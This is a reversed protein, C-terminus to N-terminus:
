GSGFGGLVYCGMRDLICKLILRGDPVPRRLSKKEEPKGV